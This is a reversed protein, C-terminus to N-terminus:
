TTQKRNKRVQVKIEALSLEGREALLARAKKLDTENEPERFLKLLGLVLKREEPKLMTVMYPPFHKEEFLDAIRTTPDFGTRAQIEDAFIRAAEWNNYEIADEYLKGLVPIDPTAGNEYRSLSVVAIGLSSAFTKQSVGGRIERIAKALKKKRTTL